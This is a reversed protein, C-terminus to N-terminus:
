YNILQTGFYKGKPTVLFVLFLIKCKMQNIKFNSMGKTNM